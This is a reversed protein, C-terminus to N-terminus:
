RFAVGHAGGFGVGLVGDGLVLVPGVAAVFGHLVVVVDIIHVVAVLVGLVGTVVVLVSRAAEVSAISCRRPPRRFEAYGRAIHSNSSVAATRSRSGRRSPDGRSATAVSTSSM